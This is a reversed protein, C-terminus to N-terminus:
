KHNEKAIGSGPAPYDADYSDVVLIWDNGLGDSEPKFECRSSKMIEGIYIADGTRPDFWWAKVLSGSGISLTNLYIPKGQESYVMVYTNDIDRTASIRQHGSYLEAVPSNDPIRTFYPRSMILKKAINVQSAGELDLNEKWSRTSEKDQRFGDAVPEKEPDYFRWMSGEGYTHGFAGSFLDHYMYRRICFGSSITHDMDELLLSEYTPEGDIVPKPPVISYDNFIKEWVDNDFFHGNQEMNFDLWEEKHFWESSSTWGKPHYTMTCCSYDEKGCIGIAIGRAQARIINRIDFTRGNEEGIAPRDGGLVYIVNKRDKLRHGIYKGYNEAKEETDFILTNSGYLNCIKDGWNPLLAVVLGYEAAIDIIEIVHDFYEDNPVTYESDIFGTEGHCNKRFTGFGDGLAAVQIVTFGQEARKKLYMRADATSVKDILMWATDGFWYFPEGNEYMLFRQNPSVIVRGKDVGAHGYIDSDTKGASSNDCAALGAIVLVVTIFKMNFM